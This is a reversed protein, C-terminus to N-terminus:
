NVNDYSKKRLDNYKMKDLVCAINESYIKKTIQWKNKVDGKSNSIM